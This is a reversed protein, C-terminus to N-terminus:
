KKIIKYVGGSSKIFYLGSSMSSMDILTSNAGANTREVEIKEGVVNYLEWEQDKGKIIVVGNTPNPFVFLQKNMDVDAIRSYELKGLANFKSLRYYSQGYYPTFDKALYKKGSHLQKTVREWHKLDTSREVIFYGEGEKSPIEWDIEVFRDGVSKANFNILDIPLSTENSTSAITMYGTSNDALHTNSVNSITIVPDTYSIVIGTGDGNYYCSTGGNSFDGDDDVLLRLHSPNVSDPIACASLTFDLNFDQSFNTKTIKWERNIRSFLSCSMLGSPIETKSSLRYCMNGANGGMLVYSINNTISGTNAANTTELDSVYIRVVDDNSHSQKQMLDADDDRGIGIVNNHYSPSTSADWLVTRDTAVYDGTTGGALNDLTIGYKIALYSWVRRRRNFNLARNFIIIEGVEGMFDSSGGSFNGTGYSPTAAFGLTSITTSNMFRGQTYNSLVLGSTLETNYMYPYSADVFSSIDGVQLVGGGSVGFDDYIISDLIYPHSAGTSDASFNWLERNPSISTNSRRHVSIIGAETFSSMFGSWTLYDGAGDLAISPNYNFYTPNTSILTPDGNITPSNGSSSQDTWASVSAGSTVGQNCKLWLRLGNSVGGPAQGYSCNLSFSLVLILFLNKM